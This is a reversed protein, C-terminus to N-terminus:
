RYGRILRLSAQRNAAAVVPHVLTWSRAEIQAQPYAPVTVASLELLDARTVTRLLGAGRAEVREGGPPVRFGPSLGRVLGAAHAALFDKSWSTAGDIRAELHLGTDDDHLELSGAARSALPKAYDHGFLLHVDAGSAVRARFAGPAFMEARGPSLETESAYPFTARLRTDGGEARLELSCEHGGWLM